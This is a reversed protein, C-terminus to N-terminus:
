EEWDAAEGVVRVNRIIENLRDAIRDLETSIEPELRFDCRYITAGNSGPEHPEFIFLWRQNGSDAGMKVFRPSRFWDTM